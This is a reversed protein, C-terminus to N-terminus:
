SVIVDRVKQSLAEMSFPKQIFHMGEDLVGHQGIVDSPYGSMYLVKLEPLVLCLRDFLERGNMVPMVVDSLLMRISSKHEMVLKICQDPNEAVLVNYGLSQLMALTMTRVMENDEALLITENGGIVEDQSPKQEKVKAGKQTIRPIFIRFTSGHGTESCVSITGGHKEVIGYVTSLGLGTGRGTEKTTFFPDFIHEVTAKDMGLGTDSVAIMIYEGPVIQPYGSAEQENIEMNTAEITLTGGDPMADQANISLNALVQEIQGTDALVL